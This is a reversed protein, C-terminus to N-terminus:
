FWAHPITPKVHDGWALGPYHLPNRQWKTRFTQFERAANQYEKGDASFTKKLKDFPWLHVKELTEKSEAEKIISHLKQMHQDLEEALRLQQHQDLEEALRLQQVDRGVTQLSELLGSFTTLLVHNPAIAKVRGMATLVDSQLKEPTPAMTAHGGAIANDKYKEIDTLLKESTTKLDTLALKKNANSKNELMELLKAIAAAGNEDHFIEEITPKERQVAAAHEIVAEGQDNCATLLNCLWKAVGAALGGRLQKYEDTNEKLYQYFDAAANPLTTDTDLDLLDGMVLVRAACCLCDKCSKDSEALATTAGNVLEYHISDESTPMRSIFKRTTKILARHEDM